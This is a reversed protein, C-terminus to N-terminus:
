PDGSNRVTLVAERDRSTVVEVWGGPHNHRVANDVLNSVLRDLLVPDGNVPAPRLDTTVTLEAREAEGDADGLAGAAAIALAHAEAALVGSDSRALALLGDVMREARGTAALVRHAMDQWQESTPHRKALQVEAGTRAIALPTRLEHAADAVFRRQSNFSAELRA